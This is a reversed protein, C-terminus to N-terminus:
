APAPPVRRTPGRYSGCWGTLVALFCPPVVYWMDDKSVLRSPAARSNRGRGDEDDKKDNTGWPVCSAIIVLLILIAAITLYVFTGTVPPFSMEDDTQADDDDDHPENPPARM